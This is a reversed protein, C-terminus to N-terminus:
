TADGAWACVVTGALQASVGEPSLGPSSNRSMKAVENVLLAVSVLM